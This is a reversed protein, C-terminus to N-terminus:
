LKMKAVSSMNAKKLSAFFFNENQSYENSWKLTYQYKQHKSLYCDTKKRFSELEFQASISFLFNM